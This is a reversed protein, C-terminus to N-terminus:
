TFPGANWSALVSRQVSARGANTRGPTTADHLTAATRQEAVGILGAYRALLDANEPEVDRGLAQERAAAGLLFRAAPDLALEIIAEAYGHPDAPPVLLGTAGHHVSECIPLACTQVGTVKYDRIGDEAQFFFYFSLKCM